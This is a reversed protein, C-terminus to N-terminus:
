QCAPLDIYTNLHGCNGTGDNPHTIGMFSPQSECQTVRNNDSTGDFSLGVVPAPHNGISIGSRKIRVGDSNVVQIGVDNESITTRDIVIGAGGAKAGPACGIISMGVGNDLGVYSRVQVQAKPGLGSLVLGAGPHFIGRTDTLKVHHSTGSVEIGNQETGCPSQVPVFTNVRTRLEVKQHNAIRIQTSTGRSVDFNTSNGVTRVLVHDAAIDFAVPAECNGDVACATPGTCTLRLPKDVVVAGVYTGGHLLLQDGPSAAAIAAQLTGAGPFVETTAWVPTGSTSLLLLLSVASVPGLSRRCRM